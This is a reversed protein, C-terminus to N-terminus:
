AELKAMHKAQRATRLVHKRKFPTNLFRNVAATVLVGTEPRGYLSEERAALLTKLLHVSIIFEEMGHDLLKSRQEIYFNSTDQVSWENLSQDFDVYTSNRGNFCAMQLLARPWLEPFKSCQQRVANAFTITHTFGLWSVNDDVKNTTSEQLKSNFHLMNTANAKLLEQFLYSPDLTSNALTLDLSQNVSLGQYGVATVDNEHGNGNKPWQNLVEGYHRFQPIQDERTSYVFSRVLSRLLPLEVRSGFRQILQKAKTLYILSHGFDNYHALAADTLTSELDEFTLGDNIASNLAEISDSERENEISQLLYNSSFSNNFEHTFPFKPRRLVDHAIHGVAELICILQSEQDGDFEDYLTLWDAAGAYAHTWGYELYEYSWEIAYAVVESLDVGLLQLRSLERAIHDYSSDSVARKLNAILKSYQEQFPPDQLDIWIENGRVELPYTRVCDSGKLVSEDRLNFKWNHWKCTLIGDESLFGESLPYGQHPCRNNCAFFEKGSNFIAIQKGKTRSVKRENHPIDAVCAVKTWDSAHKSVSKM